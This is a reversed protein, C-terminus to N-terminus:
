FSSCPTGELAEEREIKLGAEKVWSPWREEDLDMITHDVKERHIEGEEKVFAIDRGDQRM